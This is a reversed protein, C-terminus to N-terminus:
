AGFVVFVGLVLEESGSPGRDRGWRLHSLLGSNIAIVPRTSLINQIRRFQRLRRLIPPLHLQIRTWKTLGAVAMDGCEPQNSEILTASMVFM